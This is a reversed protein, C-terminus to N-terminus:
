AVFGLIENAQQLHHARFLHEAQESWHDSILSNGPVKTLTEEGDVTKKIQEINLKTQTCGCVKFLRTLTEHQKLDAVRFIHTQPLYLYWPLLSMVIQATPRASLELFSVIMQQPDDIAALRPNQGSFVQWRCWSVIVERIDRVLFITTFDKLLACHQISFGFHGVLARNDQISALAEAPSLGAQLAADPNRRGTEVDINSYDWAKDDTIHLGTSQIGAQQLLASVRYTGSKPISNIFIKAM